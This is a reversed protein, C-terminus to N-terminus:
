LRSPIDASDHFIGVIILPKTTRYNVWYRGAKIWCRGPRALEPYPRPAPLGAGQVQEITAIAEDMASVLNRVAEPRELYEYHRRLDRLQRAARATFGIM